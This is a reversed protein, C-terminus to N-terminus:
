ADIFSPKSVSVVCLCCRCMTCFVFVVFCWISVRLYRRRRALSRVTVPHNWNFKDFRAVHPNVKVDEGGSIDDVVVQVPRQPQVALVITYRDAAGGEVVTLTQRSLVVLSSTTDDTVDSNSTIPTAEM